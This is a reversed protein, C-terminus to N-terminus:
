CYELLFDMISEVSTNIERNILIKKIIEYKLNQGHVHIQNLYLLMCKKIM